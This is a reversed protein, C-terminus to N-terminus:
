QILKLKFNPRVAKLVKFHNDKTCLILNRRICIAAILIDITPLPNGEQLLDASINVSEEYDEINPYIVTLEEFELAKPFEVLSFITTFGSTDLKNKRLLDILQNTDYVIEEM